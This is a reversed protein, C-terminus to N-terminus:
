SVTVNANSFTVTGGDPNTVTIAITVKGSNPANATKANFTIKTSGTLVPATLGTMATGNETIAVTAGAVFGTGNVTWGTTTNHVIAVPTFSTITPAADVTVTISATGGDPNHVTILDGGATTVTFTNLTITTGTIAGVTWTGRAATVTAGAQFGTGTLTLTVAKNTVVPNPSVATLTPPPNVTVAFTTVGGDPNTVTLVDPGTVSTLFSGLSISTATVAGLTFTGHAAAVTLGSVFGTGTLTLTTSTNVLFPNPTVSSIFPPPHVALSFSATGGDPNTMTIADSGPSSATVALVMSTATLSVVTLATGNTQTLTMGSVFGSGSITVNSSQGAVVFNPTATVVIPPPDVAFSIAGMTGGDPNGINVTAPTGAVLGTLTLNVTTASVFPATLTANTVTPTFGPQFGTGTVTAVLTQGAVIAARNVSLAKPATITWTDSTLDPNTMTITASGGNSPGVFNTLSVSDDVPDGDNVSNGAVLASTGSWSAGTATFTAGTEFGGGVLTLNRVAPTWGSAGNLDPVETISTQFHGGDTNIISLTYSGPQDFTQLCFDVESGTPQYVSAAPIVGGGTSILARINAKLNLGSTFKFLTGAYTTGNTTCTAADNDNTVAGSAPVTLTATPQSINTNFLPDTSPDILTSTSYNCGNVCTGGSSVWTVWVSVRYEQTTVATKTPTCFGTVNSYWCVDIFTTPNYSVNNIVVPLGNTAAGTVPVVCHSVACTAGTATADYNGASTTDDQGVINLATSPASAYLATVESLTRGTVLKAIPLSQVSELQQDAVFVAEQHQRQNNVGRINDVFFAISASSVIAIILLSVMMEVMSFGDDNTARPGLARSMFRTVIARDAHARRDNIAM